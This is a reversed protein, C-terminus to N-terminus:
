PSYLATKQQVVQWDIELLIRRRWEWMVSPLAQRRQALRVVNKGDGACRCLAHCIKTDLYGAAALESAQKASLRL